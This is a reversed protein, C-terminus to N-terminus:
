LTKTKNEKVHNKNRKKNSTSYHSLTEPTIKKHYRKAQKALAERDDTFIKVSKKARSVDM